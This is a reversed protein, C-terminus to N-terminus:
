STRKDTTHVIWRTLFTTGTHRESSSLMFYVKLTRQEDCRVNMVWEPVEISQSLLKTCVCIWNSQAHDNERTSTSGIFNLGAFLPLWRYWCEAATICFFILYPSILISMPCCCQDLVKTRWVHSAFQIHRKFQYIFRRQHLWILSHHIFCVCPREYYKFWNVHYFFCISNQLFNRTFFIQNKSRTLKRRGFSSRKMIDCVTEILNSWQEDDECEDSPISLLHLTDFKRNQSLAFTQTHTHQGDRRGLPWKTM